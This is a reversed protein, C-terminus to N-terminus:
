GFVPRGSGPEAQVQGDAVVRVGRRYVDVVRGQVQRGAFPSWGCRTQWGHEPLVWGANLDVLVLDADFGPEIRGKNPIGFVEAPRAANVSSKGCM